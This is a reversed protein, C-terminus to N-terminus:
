RPPKKFLSRRRREEEAACCLRSCKRIVDDRFNNCRIIVFPIACAARRILVLSDLIVISDVSEDGHMCCCGCCQIEPPDLNLIEQTLVAEGPGVNSCCM